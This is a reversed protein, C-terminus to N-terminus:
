QAGFHIPMQDGSPKAIITETLVCVYFYRKVRKRKWVKQIFVSSCIDLQATIKAM